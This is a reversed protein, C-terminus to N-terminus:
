KAWKKANEAFVARKKVAPDSSHAAKEVKAAPIKEDKPTGTDKHLLGEHGKKIHINGGRARKDYRPKPASGGVRLCAGGKKKKKPPSGDDKRGDPVGMDPEGDDGDTDPSNTM